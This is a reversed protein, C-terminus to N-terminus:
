PKCVTLGKNRIKASGWIMTNFGENQWPKRFSIKNPILVRHTQWVMNQIRFCCFGQFGFIGDKIQLCLGIQGSSMLTAFGWGLMFSNRLHSKMGKRTSVNMCRILPSKQVGPVHLQTVCYKHRVDKNVMKGCNQFVDPGLPESLLNYVQHFAEM